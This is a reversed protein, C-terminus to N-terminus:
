SDSNRIDVQPYSECQYTYLTCRHKHLGGNFKSEEKPILQPSGAVPQPPLTSPSPSGPSQSDRQRPQAGSPPGPRMVRGQGRNQRLHPPVYRSSGSLM